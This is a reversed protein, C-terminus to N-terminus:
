KVAGGANRRNITFFLLGDSEMCKVPLDAEPIEVTGAAEMAVRIGDPMISVTMEKLAPLYAEILTEFTDYLEHIDSLPLSSAEEGVAAADIGCCKLFRASESLALFLERNPKPLSEESLLLLNTKRKSYANLVCVKGLVFAFDEADPQTSSLLEGIKKQKPAIAAGIKKYVLEQAELQAKQEKLRRELAILDNEESLVANAEALRRQEKHLESEDETWFTYGARIKMCMLRTDEDLYVPSRQASALIEKTAQIPASSAYVTDLGPGTILVPTSLSHFFGAYNENYPILRSRICCEFILLMSFCDIEVGSYMRATNLRDVVLSIFLKVSLWLLIAFALMIVLKKDRRSMIMFLVIMGSILVIMIWAYLLFFGPGWSYTSSTMDFLAMEVKPRYVFGHLDNTLPLAMLACGTILLGLSLRRHLIRDGALRVATILFLTPIMIRPIFYLYTVYRAPIVGNVIGRYKFVRLMLFLLMFVGAAYIYSRIKTKLLRANVTHMWFIILGLLLTANLCFMLTNFFASGTRSSLYCIGALLFIGTFVITTKHKM